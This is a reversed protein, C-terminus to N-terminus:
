FTVLVEILLYIAPIWAVFDFFSDSDVWCGDHSYHSISNYNFFFGLMYTTKSDTTIKLVSLGLCFPRLNGSPMKLHM